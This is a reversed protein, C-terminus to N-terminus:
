NSLEIDKESLHRYGLFALLAYLIAGIISYVKLLSFVETGKYIIIWGLTISLYVVQWVLLLRNQNIVSFTSSITQTAFNSITLPLMIAAIRGAISWDQGLVFCFIEEGWFILPSLIITAVGLNIIYSYLYLKRNPKHSMKEFFVNGFSTSIMTLPFNIVRWAREYHGVITNTTVASLAFILLNVSLANLVGMPMLYLPFNIYDKFTKYSTRFSLYRIKWFERKFLQFVFTGWSLFLGILFGTFLGWHGDIYIYRCLRFGTQGANQVVRNSALSRFNRMRTFWYSLSKQTGALFICLPLFWIIKRYSLSSFVDSLDEHFVAIVVLCLLAVILAIFFNIALLHFAHGDRKPLVIAMDLRGNAVVAIVNVISIFLAVIGFEAPTYLRTLIPIALLSIAQAAANGSLLTLFDKVFVKQFIQRINIIM